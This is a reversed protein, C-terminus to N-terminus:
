QDTDEEAGEDHFEPEKEEESEEVDKRSMLAKLIGFQKTKDKSVILKFPDPLIPLDEKAWKTYKEDYVDPTCLEVLHGICWSVYYGNGELYGENRKDAGIVKAISQAVSPKEAIVLRM